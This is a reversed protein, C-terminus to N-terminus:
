LQYDICYSFSGDATEWCRTGVGGESYLCDYCSGGGGSCGGFSPYGPNWSCGSADGGAPASIGGAFGIVLLASRGLKRWM